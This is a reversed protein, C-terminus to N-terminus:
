STPPKGRHAPPPRRDYCHHEHAHDTTTTSPSRPGCGVQVSSERAARLQLRADAPTCRMAVGQVFETPTGVRRLRGNRVLPRVGVDGLTRRTRARQGPMARRVRRAHLRSRTPLRGRAAWERFRSARCGGVLAGETGTPTFLPVNGAMVVIDFTRDLALAALDALEFRVQPARARATALMSADMDVGLVEVGRRALEIALRGTGCGADLVTDPEFRMVFDAEGHVDVGSQALDDFRRQYDAGDWTVRRGSRLLCARGGRSRTRTARRYEERLTQQPRHVYGLMRALKESESDMPLADASTGTLLYRYNRARECLVYAEGLRAADDGTVADIAVLQELAGLTAPTRVARQLAGHALQELQVTFEIDSLSGRGLKLHFQPDEGPPIREREIRAKMRRIERRWGEPFPERYVYEHATEVFRAGLDPDGAVPRARTLAQFEWVQARQSWYTDYGEISRALVGHRGDPRLRADIRFTQGEATNEGIAGMLRTAIQEAISFDDVGTGEFVFMVDIDSAYSLERGGLRGLGIVAFPIEPELSQLAAEVSADALDSLGRGTAALDAFGLLDRAGTRLLQRRKFRRLGNRRARDDERWDLTDLAEDVLEERTASETLADDDALVDLFDPQRHLALGLVRSSGLVRCAREAAVPTERFRRAVTSSRTYGETLRRLQLLGLDPDPAASLWGLIAPLLQQMVRSRRTLGATLERFAARTSEVDQFGFASLREEAAADTLPGIGALTDLVPAFFLKEHISRVTAQQSQHVTGFGASASEYAPRPVRASAGPTHARGPRGAAHPDAARRRAALPARGHADVRVRCRSRSRRLDHHLRRLRTRRARRPDDPFPDVRDHRGHVLQLLQVAFEVDRIGGPGRKLERDSLGKERLMDETRAKMARIERVADPHSTAPWVYRPAASAFDVGLQHDGAVPRAKILAQLEWSQAWREWYREFSELTRSLAGSRGEPRLDADTRFVIGDANPRTMTALVSRAAREAEQVDGDHVFMVDVDSSYNLECGGLKGMAIVAFPNPPDAVAVAVQLCAEALAALEAGVTRLDALGLLDRGAIRVLQRRKWTRLAREPDDSALPHDADLADTITSHLSADRLMAVADFDHELAVFLSDSAVVVTVLANRM